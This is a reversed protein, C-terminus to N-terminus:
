SGALIREQLRTGVLRKLLMAHLLVWLQHLHCADLCMRAEPLRLVQHATLLLLLHGMMLMRIASAGCGRRCRVM